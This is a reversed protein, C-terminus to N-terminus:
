PSGAHIPRGCFCEEHEILDQILQQRINSPIEGRKRKEDLMSLTKEIAAMAILMSSDMVTERIEREVDDKDNQCQELESEVQIRQQQLVRSNPVSMLSQNISDIHTQALKVERDIEDRRDSKQAKELYYQNLKEKLEFSSSTSVRRSERRYENAIDELHKRARELIELKLVHYIAYQIEAKAEPKAFNNIKEGDFLFYTRVNSPLIVNMRGIPNDIIETKYSGWRIRTM